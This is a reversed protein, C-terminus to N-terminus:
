PVRKKVIVYALDLLLGQQLGTGLPRGLFKTTLADIVRTPLLGSLLRALVGRFFSTGGLHFNGCFVVEANLDMFIQHIRNPTTPYGHSWDGNWFYNKWRIINPAAVLVYGGPKTVRLMEECWARADLYTPAHELVHISFLLDYSSTPLGVRPLSEELISHGKGRCFDALKRNPEIGCYSEVAIERCFDAGRGTGAGIEVISSEYPQANTRSFFETIIRRTVYVHLFETKEFSARGLFEDYM